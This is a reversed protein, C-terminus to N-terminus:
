AEAPADTGDHPEFVNSIGIDVWCIALSKHERSGGYVRRNQGCAFGCRLPIIQPFPKGKQTMAMALRIGISHSQM